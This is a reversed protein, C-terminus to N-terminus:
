YELSVTDLAGYDCLVESQTLIGGTDHNWLVILVLLCVLALVSCTLKMLPLLIGSCHVHFTINLM